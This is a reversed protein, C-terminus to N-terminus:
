KKRGTIVVPYPGIPPAELACRDLELKTVRNELKELRKIIVGRNKLTLDQPNKKKKTKPKM